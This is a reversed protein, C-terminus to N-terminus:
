ISHIWVQVAKVDLTLQIYGILRKSNYVPRVIELHQEKTRPVHIEIPPQKNGRDILSILDLCAYSVQPHVNPNLRPTGLQYIRLSKAYPFTKYLQSSRKDIAKKDGDRVLGILAPDRALIELSYAYSEVAKSLQYAISRSVSDKAERQQARIQGYSAQQSLWLAVAFILVFFLFALLSVTSLTLGGKKVQQKARRRARRRRAM